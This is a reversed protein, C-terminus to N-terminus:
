SCPQCTICGGMCANCLRVHRIMPSMSNAVVDSEVFHRLELLEVLGMGCLTVWLVVVGERVVNQNAHKQCKRVKELTTSKQTLPTLSVGLVVGSFIHQDVLLYSGVWKLCHPSFLLPGSAPQRRSRQLTENNRSVGTNFTVVALSLAQVHVQIPIELVACQMLCICTSRDGNQRFSRKM